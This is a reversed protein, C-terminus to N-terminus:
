QKIRWRLPTVEADAAPTPAPTPADIHMEADLGKERMEM